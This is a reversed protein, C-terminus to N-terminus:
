RSVFYQQLRVISNNLDRSQVCWARYRTCYVSGFAVLVVDIGRVAGCCLEVSWCVWQDETNQATKGLISPSDKNVSLNKMAMQKFFFFFVGVIRHMNEDYAGDVIAM